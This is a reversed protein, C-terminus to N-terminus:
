HFDHSVQEPLGLAPLPAFAEAMIHIVGAENQLRGTSVLAPELTIVLRAKEFLAPWVIANAFGTEDELTIFCFGKATGPRQRCTVTGAVTVREGHRVVQWISVSFVDFQAGAPRPATIAADDDHRFEAFRNTRADLLVALELNRAKGLSVLYSRANEKDLFELPAQLMESLVAADEVLQKETAPRFTKLDYALMGGIVLLMALGSAILILRILRQRLSLQWAM